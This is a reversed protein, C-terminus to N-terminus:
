NSPRSSVLIFNLDISRSGCVISLDNMNTHAATMIHNPISVLSIVNAIMSVINPQTESFVNKSLIKYRAQTFQIDFYLSFDMILVQIVTVM